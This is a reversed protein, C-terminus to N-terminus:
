DIDIYSVELYCTNGYEEKIKQYIFACVKCDDLANHSDLEYFGFGYKLDELKYSDLKVDRDKEFDYERIKQRSLKLTDIVKNKIKKYGLDYLNQLIFSMDFSANHAILTDEGIFEIFKPLVEAITPANEVMENTIGTIARIKDSIKGKPKVYSHFHEVPIDSEYRYAGIEIIENNSSSLGTTELDFVVFCSPRESTGSVHMFREYDVDRTRKIKKVFEDSQEKEIDFQKLDKFFKLYYDAQSISKKTVETEKQNNVITSNTEKEKLQMLQNNSLTSEVNQSKKNITLSKYLTVFSRFNHERVRNRITFWDILMIIGFGGSTLLKLIGIKVDGLMFRDIGLVGLFISVLTIVLPDKYKISSFITLQEEDISELSEKIVTIKSSPFYKSNKMIFTDINTKDM